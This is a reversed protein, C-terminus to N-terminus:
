ADGVVRLLAAPLGANPPHADAYPIHQVEIGRAQAAFLDQSVVRIQFRLVEATGQIVGGLLDVM